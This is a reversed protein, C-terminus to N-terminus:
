FRLNIRGTLSLHKLKWTSTLSTNATQKTSVGDKQTFSFSSSATVKPNKCFVASLGIKETTTLSQYHNEPIFSIGATIGPVIKTFHWNNSFLFSASDFDTQFTRQSSDCTFNALGTFAFNYLLSSIKAGAALKFKHEKFNNQNLRVDSYANFGTKLFVPRKKGVPYNAQVGIKTQFTDKILSENASLLNEEENLFLSLNLTYRGLSLKNETKYTAFVEGYPDEYTAASFLTKFHPVELLIQPNMCFHKGKHFYYDTTTFWSNFTNEKYTFCGATLATTVSCNKYISFTQSGSFVPFDTQPNYFCNIKSESFVKKRNIYGIEAFYSVPKSYNSIGPLGATIISVDTKATSFPTITSSLAPNNLKSIGGGPTLNGAKFQCPFNKFNKPTFIVTGWNYNMGELEFDQSTRIEAFPLLLKEQVAGSFDEAWLKLSFIMIVFFSKIKM